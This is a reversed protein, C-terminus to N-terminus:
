RLPPWDRPPLALTFDNITLTLNPNYAPDNDLLDGWAARMYEVESRFRDRKELTDEKGRSASEHHYLEAYPTWLNRLGAARVKLCFDVDNFAVKLQDANLGGVRLFTERRILLCAATVASLNQQLYNRHAQGAAGRPHTQWAHAAVGGIGLIVGAHQIRDDPYYLKAGVCGIEPRIAHSVMERLWDGHIVELDNNLLGILPADTHEVGLNNLASYNFEGPSRIVRVPARGKEAPATIAALYDLTAPDDSDNDVILIEFAPYETKALLSDVCPQLVNLRNRTPIILTVRPAPDPVPYHVRWYSGKTPSIRAEVGTRIFHETIVKEAAVAAFPKEGILMATSGPVSRWHYLIRPIHRIRDPASREIVRMALDWDQSGEYGVRFGGVERVLLTRYVGLHSIFNQVNFLDPNWDPKFYHDYRHGNEDIKDEDSYVVDAEPHADLELAVCALAHARLEDDHDLLAIFEGQALALASNSNASIHGNTERIVVKIRRPDKRQYRQLVRRVHPQKSADDSICLEWNEYIQARVSEIAAILLKEPTNYVPLIVSILPSRKLKSVAKRISTATEPTLTDYSAVWAGYSNPPPPAAKGCRRIFRSDAVHWAGVEDQVEVILLHSGRRPVEVKIQWGCREAGPFDRFHDLVDLREDGYVAHATTKGLRARIGKLRRRNRLLYWGRMSLTAGVVSWDKPYDINGMVAPSVGPPMERDLFARRLARLPSTIKWSISGQLKAIKEDRSRIVAEAQALRDAATALEASHVARLHNQTAESMTQVRNLEERGNAVAAQSEALSNQTSSLHARLADIEADAGVLANEFANMQARASDLLAEVQARRDRQRDCEDELSKAYAHTERLTKAFTAVEARSATLLDELNRIHDRSLRDRVASEDSLKDFETQLVARAQELRGIHERAATALAEVNRSHNQALQERALINERDANLRSVEAEGLERARELGSIHQRAASLLSELNRSHNQTLQERNFVADRDNRLNSIETEGLERAKELGAIHERAAALLSELNRVHDQTLKERAAIQDREQLVGTLKRSVEAKIGEEVHRVVDKLLNTGESPDHADSRGSKGEARELRNSILDALLTADTAAGSYSLSWNALQPRALCSEYFGILARSNTTLDFWKRAFKEGARGISAGGDPLDFIRVCADAIDEPTGSPPLVTAERGDVMLAAINTPPLVVPLGTALFEPLKSPLRFDNFPGPRGPQVLVDAIALLEPLREKEVFGLDLVHRNLDDTLGASFRPHSFGTRILRAKIGRKNLIAVAIYLDRMEAENAFTNSGTFVITREGEALGLERRVKQSRKRLATAGGFFARDVGPLLLHSPTGKPVFDSLPGIIHTVGDAIRLFSESRVPHSLSRDLLKSLESEPMAKLQSHSRGTFCEALFRENDELHIILRGSEASAGAALAAHRYELCFERVYERPTWAHIIDAVLGNSFLNPRALMEGYTTAVFIPAAVHRLTEKRHPVTVVCSHGAASLTNAFGGIHNLSNTTFDGYNVFLINM